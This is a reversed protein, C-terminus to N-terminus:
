SVRRVVIRNGFAATVEVATGAEIFEGESEVVTVFTGFRAKGSPRLTTLATGRSGNPLSVDPQAAATFGATEEQTTSLVLRSFARSRPLFRALVAFVVLAGGVNALVLLVNRHFARWEWEFSPVVFGQMSFVLSGVILVIGSVGTVGFGPILFVEVILLILGLLFLLLETSGVHGLMGNAAFVLAFALIGIAGPVGFGPSSIEAFLAVLGILILVSTVATSTILAVLQDSGTPEVDIRPAASLALAELLASTTDLTGSSVGYREAELATLSLLKGAPSLVRIEEVTAGRASAEREVREREDATGVTPRGDM